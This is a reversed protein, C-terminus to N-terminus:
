RRAEGRRRCIGWLGAIGSGLLVFSGPEPATTVDLSAGFGSGESYFVSATGTLDLGNSWKGSFNVTEGNSYAHNVVEFASGSDVEGTFTVGGPGTMQVSGGQGFSATYIMNNQDYNWSIPDATLFSFTWPVVPDFDAVGEAATGYGMIYPTGSCTAPPCGSSININLDDALAGLAFSTIFLLFVIRRTDFYRM